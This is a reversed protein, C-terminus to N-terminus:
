GGTEKRAKEHAELHEPLARGRTDDKEIESWPYGDRRMVRDLRDHERRNREAQESSVVSGYWHNAPDWPQGSLAEVINLVESRDTLHRLHIFRHYRGAGDSRFWCFWGPAKDRGAYSGGALEIGIDEYSTLSHDRARVADGIWLLWHKEPQRDLQHWKFGVERLWDETILAAAGVIADAMLAVWFSM